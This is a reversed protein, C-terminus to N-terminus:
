DHRVLYRVTVISTLETSSSSKPWKWIAMNRHMTCHQAVSLKLTNTSSGACRFQFVKDGKINANAGSELLLKVMELEGSASAATLATKTKHAQFPLELVEM